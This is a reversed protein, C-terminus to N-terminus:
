KSGKIMNEQNLLTEISSNKGGGVRELNMLEERSMPQPLNGTGYGFQSASDIPALQAYVKNNKVKPANEKTSEFPNDMGSKRLHATSGGGNQQMFSYQSDRKAPPNSGKAAGKATQQTNFGNM